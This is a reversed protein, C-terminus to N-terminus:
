EAEEAEEEEEQEADQLEHTEEKMEERESEKSLRIHSLLSSGKKHITKLYKWKLYDPKILNVSQSENM